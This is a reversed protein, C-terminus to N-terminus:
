NNLMIYELLMYNKIKISIITKDEQKVVSFTVFEGDVTLKEGKVYEINKETLPELIFDETFLYVAAVLDIKRIFVFRGWPRMNDSKFKKSQEKTRTDFRVREKRPFLSMVAEYVYKPDKFNLAKAEYYDDDKFKSFSLKIAKAANPFSKKINDYMSMMDTGWWEYTDKICEEYAWIYFDKSTTVSM